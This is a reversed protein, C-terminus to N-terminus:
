QMFSIIEINGENKQPTMMKVQQAQGVVKPSLLTQSAQLTTKQTIPQQLQKKNLKDNPQNM